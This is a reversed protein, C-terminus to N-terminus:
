KSNEFVCNMRFEILRKTNVLSEGTPNYIRLPWCGCDTPNMYGAKQENLNTQGSQDARCTCFCQGCTKTYIHDFVFSKLDGSEMSYYRDFYEYKYNDSQQCFFWSKHLPNSKGFLYEYEVDIYYIKLFGLKKGKYVLKWSNASVWRIGIKNARIFEVLNLLDTTSGANLFDGAVDEPKPKTIKQNKYTSM